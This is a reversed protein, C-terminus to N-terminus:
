YVFKAVGIPYLTATAYATGDVKLTVTMTVTRPIGSVDSLFGHSNFIIKNGSSLFISTSSPLRTSYMISDPTASTTNYPLHDEGISYSKGNAAFTIIARAGRSMAEARARRLDFEFSARTDQRQYSSQLAKLEPWAFTTLIGVLGIAVLLEIATFGRSRM